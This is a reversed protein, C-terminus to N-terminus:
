STTTADARSPSKGGRREEKKSRGGGRRLGPSQSRRERGRGLSQQVGHVIVVRRSLSAAKSPSSTTCRLVLSLPGRFGSGRGERERERKRQRQRERQRGLLEGLHTCFRSNHISEKILHGITLRPPRSVYSKDRPNGHGYLKCATLQAVTCTTRPQLQIETPFRM